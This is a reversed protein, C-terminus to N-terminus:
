AGVRPLARILAVAQGVSLVTVAGPSTVLVSLLVSLTIDEGDRGKKGKAKNRIYRFVQVEEGAQLFGIVDERDIYRGERLCYLRRNPYKRIHRPGENSDVVTM